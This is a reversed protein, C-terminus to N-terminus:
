RKLMFGASGDPGRPLRIVNDEIRRLEPSPQNPSSHNRGYSRATQNMSQNSNNRPIFTRNTNSNDTNSFGNTTGNKFNASERPFIFNFDILM